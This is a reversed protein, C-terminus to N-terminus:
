LIEEIGYLAEDSAPAIEVPPNVMQNFARTQPDLM